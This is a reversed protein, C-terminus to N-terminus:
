LKGVWYEFFLYSDEIFLGGLNANYVAIMKLPLPSMYLTYTGKASPKEILDYFDDIGNCSKVYSANHYIYYKNM